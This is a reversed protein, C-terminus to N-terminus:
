HVWSYNLLLLREISAVTSLAHHLVSGHDHLRILIRVVTIESQWLDLVLGAMQIHRLTHGIQVALSRILVEMKLM